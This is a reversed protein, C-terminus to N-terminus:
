WLPPLSLTTLSSTHPGDLHHYVCAFQLHVHTKTHVQKEVENLWYPNPKGSATLVKLKVCNRTSKLIVGFPCQSYGNRKMHVHILHFSHKIKLHSFVIKSKLYM